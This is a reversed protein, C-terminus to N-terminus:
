GIETTVWFAPALLIARVGLSRAARAVLLAFVAPFLSLYAVLLFAAFVSLATPLGGFTTMTEVLWYLTAAFYVGGSLLGLAFPRSVGRFLRSIRNTQRSSSQSAM